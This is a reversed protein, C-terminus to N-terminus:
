GKLKFTIDLPVFKEFQIYFWTITGRNTLAFLKGDSPINLSSAGAVDGIRIFVEGCIQGDEKIFTFAEGVNPTYTQKKKNLNEIKWTM